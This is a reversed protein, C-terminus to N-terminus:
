GITSGRALTVTSALPRGAEGPAAVPSTTNSASSASAIFFFPWSTIRTRGSVDGSSKWPITAARAMRVARPPIVLWAATTARPMPLVHTTPAFSSSTSGVAPRNRTFPRATLRPWTIVTSPVVPRTIRPAALSTVGFTPLSNSWSLGHGSARRRSRLEFPQNMRQDFRVRHETMAAAPQPDCIGLDGFHLRARDELRRAMHGAFTLFDRDLDHNREDRVHAFQQILGFDNPPDRLLDEM